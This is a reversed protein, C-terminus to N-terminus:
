VKSYFKERRLLKKVTEAMRQVRTEEQRASYIWKIYSQREGDSLSKFFKEAPPEDELCSQMEAPIEIPEDDTYLIVQVHDGEGKKIKKRIEAKVPLFLKGEGYPMLHYKKIEIGDITGKVRVWGFRAKGNQIVQPLDAYIWGGKGPIKKLVFKQDILPKQMVLIGEM